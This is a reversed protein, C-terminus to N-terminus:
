GAELSWHEHEGLQVPHSDLLKYSVMGDNCDKPDPLTLSWLIQELCKASVVPIPVDNHLVALKSQVM